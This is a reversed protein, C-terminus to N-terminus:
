RVASELVDIRNRKTDLSARLGIPVTLKRPIHGYQFNAVVPCRLKEAYDKEVEDLTLFPEGPHKPECNTFKGFVLASIRRRIGANLLQALMRDIRNPAEDVDEIFLIADQLSPFFPTGVANVVLAFNGGILRGSAKGSRLVALPEDAPNELPGFKKASTLMRWFHEETYPDFDKWMEVGPMPGSFTVLGIKRFVALQLATIDSYGVIIKPHKKLARYDIMQLIRPTGDGGRIAFVAKVDKNRVMANFDEARQEDTGALYGRTKRVHDGVKIRYGAQELYRIGSELKEESSSSSAPAVLGILDGKRLKPPKIVTV